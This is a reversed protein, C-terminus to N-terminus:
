DKDAACVYIPSGQSQKTVMYPLGLFNMSEKGFVTRNLYFFLIGTIVAFAFAMIIENMSESCLMYRVGIISVIVVFIFFYSIKCRTHWLPNVTPPADTSKDKLRESEKISKDMEELTESFENMALALYTGIATISFIGYSPYPDHAFMRKYNFTPTKYGMRCKIDFKQIVTGKINSVGWSVLKHSLVTEFIFISFVGFAKNKTLFYLLLSGFLISDPMLRHLQYASESVTYWLTDEDAM